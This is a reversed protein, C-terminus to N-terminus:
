KLEKNLIAKVRSLKVHEFECHDNLITLMGKREALLRENLKRLYDLRELLEYNM